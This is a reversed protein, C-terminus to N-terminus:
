GKTKSKLNVLSMLRILFKVSIILKLMSNLSPQLSINVAQKTLRYAGATKYAQRAAEEQQPTAKEGTVSLFCPNAHLHNREGLSIQIRCYQECNILLLDTIRLM